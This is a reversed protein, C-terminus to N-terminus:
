ACDDEDEELPTTWGCARQLEAGYAAVDLQVHFSCGRPGVLSWERGSRWSAPERVGFSDSDDTFSRIEFSEDDDLLSSGDSRADSDADESEDAARRKEEEIRECMEHWLAKVQAQSLPGPAAVFSPPTVPASSAASSSSSLAPSLNLVDDEDDGDLIRQM